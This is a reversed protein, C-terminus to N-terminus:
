QEVPITISVLTGQAPPSLTSRDIISLHEQRNLGMLELRQRVLKMGLSQHNKRENHKQTALIGIGNDTITCNLGEQGPGIEVMLERPDTQPALGHIIANEIIPQLIMSPIYTNHADIQEDIQFKYQFSHRLSELSCYQELTEIEDMLPIYEEATNRLTKRMLGAFQGLYLDAKEQEKKRILNQISSMANFLFHPNMQSRIGRLEVELLQRQRLDRRAIIRRRWLIAGSIFLMILAGIGLSQWFQLRQAPTWASPAQAEAIKKWTGRLKRATGLDRHNALVNGDEGILFYHNSSNSIHYREKLAEMESPAVFVFLGKKGAIDKNFESKSSAGLLHVIEPLQGQVEQLSQIDTLAIDLNEAWGIHLLLKKGAFDELEVKVGEKDKFSWSPAVKGKQLVRYGVAPPLNSKGETFVMMERILQTDKTIALLQSLRKQGSETLQGLETYDRFLQMLAHRVFTEKSPLLQALAFDERSGFDSSHYVHQLLYFQFQLFDEVDFDFTKEPPLRYLLNGMKQLHHLLDPEFIIGKGEMFRCAAAWQTSAHELKLGRDMLTIFGSRLSPARKSLFALERAEKSRVKQFFVVHDKKLLDVDMSRYLTDGRMEQYFDLLFENEARASGHIQMERYFANANTQVQITDGPEVYFRMTQYGHRLNVMRPHDLPFTLQFNGADDLEILSDQWYELWDGERFFQARVEETAPSQINGKLMCIKSPYDVQVFDVRYIADEKRSQMKVPSEHAPVAQELLQCFFTAMSSASLASPLPTQELWDLQETLLPAAAGSQEVIRGFQDLFQQYPGLQCSVPLTQQTLADLIFLLPDFYQDQFRTDLIIPQSLIDKTNPRYSNEALEPFGLMNVYVVEAVLQRGEEISKLTLGVRIESEGPHLEDPFYPIDRVIAGSKEGLKQQIWEVKITQGAQLAESFSQGRVQGLIMMICWCFWWTKLQRRQRQNRGIIM